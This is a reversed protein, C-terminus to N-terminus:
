NKGYSRTRKSERKDKMGKKCEMVKNERKETGQEEERRERRNNNNKRRKM